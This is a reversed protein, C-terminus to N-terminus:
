IKCTIYQETPANEKSTEKKSNSVSSEVNICDNWFDDVDNKILGSLSKKSKNLVNSTAM